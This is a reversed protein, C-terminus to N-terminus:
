LKAELFIACAFIVSVLFGGAFFWTLFIAPVSHPLVPASCHRFHVYPM